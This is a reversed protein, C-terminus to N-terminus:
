LKCSSLADPLQADQASYESAQPSLSLALVAGDVANVALTAAAGWQIILRCRPRRTVGSLLAMTLGSLAREALSSCRRPKRTRASVAAMADSESSSGGRSPLEEDLGGQPM